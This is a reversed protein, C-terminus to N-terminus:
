NLRMISANKVDYLIISYTLYIQNLARIISLAAAAHYFSPPPPSDHIRVNTPLYSHPSNLNVKSKPKQKTPLLHPLSHTRNCLTPIFSIQQTEIVARHKLTKTTYHLTTHDQPPSEYYTLTPLTFYTPVQPIGKRKPRPRYPAHQTYRPNPNHTQRLYLENM